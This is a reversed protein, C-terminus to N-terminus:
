DDAMRDICARLFRIRHGDANRPQEFVLRAQEALFLEDGEDHVFWRLEAPFARISSFDGRMRELFADGSLGADRSLAANRIFDSGELCEDMTPRGAVASAAIMSVLLGAGLQQLLGGSETMADGM